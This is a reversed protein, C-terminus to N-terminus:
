GKRRLPLGAGLRAFRAPERLLGKVRRGGVAGDSSREEVDASKSVFRCLIIVVLICTFRYCLVGMHAMHPTLFHFRCVEVADRFPNSVDIQASTVFEDPDEEPLEPM